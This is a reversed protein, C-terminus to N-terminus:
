PVAKLAVQESTLDRADIVRDGAGYPGWEAPDTVTFIGFTRTGCACALHMIGCDASIFLSLASLVSSLREISSSYYAPYRSGLMSKGNMPVIEVLAFGKSHAELVTLFPQWWKAELLKPGTANAFIGIVGKNSTADPLHSMLQTLVELGQQRDTTSLRVEPTPYARAEGLGLAARLLAVPVQGTHVPSKPVPIPHSIAGMKMDSKFGLKFRSHALRLLLRSTGSRPCPDIALDYRVRRMQRLASLFRLPHRFTRSPLQFITRVSRRAGFIGSAAPSRTLIDIEAGPYISEIERILPTLLLTNGLSHTVRCILVRFIGRTPLTALREPQAAHAGFLFGRTYRAVRHRFLATEVLSEGGSLSALSRRERKLRSDLRVPTFFVWCRVSDLTPYRSTRPIRYEM